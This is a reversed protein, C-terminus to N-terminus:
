ETGESSKRCDRLAQELSQMVESRESPPLFLGVFIGKGHSSIRIFSEEINQPVNPPCAMSLKVWYPNFIHQQKEGRHSIRVIKLEQHNLTIIEAARGTKYHVKFAWYILAVDLGMFGFIPWAGKLYFMVGIMFSLGSIVSMLIIFGLKGLSRQPYLIMEYCIATDLNKDEIM